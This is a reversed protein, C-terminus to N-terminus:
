LTKVAAVFKDLARKAGGSTISERAIEVGNRFSSASGSVYLLAATNQLVYDLIPHGEPLQGDVLDRVTSANEDPSGSAVTSLSHSALGFEEPSLSYEKIDGSVELEWVHTKGAPSIEDLGEYGCVVLARSGPFLSKVAEAYVRGLSPTYVGLVRAKVNLPNLLPGVLNFVTPIGLNKRIPKMKALIPHFVPGSMYVFDNDKLLEPTSIDTVKSLDVHLHTLLDSAGSMSTSAPGGHKAVKLKGTGAAVIASTTSVNFTNQGDGGTGVIDAYENTETGPLPVVKRAHRRLNAVTTAIFDPTHDRNTARAAVIFAAVQLEHVNDDLLIATLADDIEAPTLSSPDGILKKTIVNLSM